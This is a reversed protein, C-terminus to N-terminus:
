SNPVYEGQAQSLLKINGSEMDAHMGVAKIVSNPQIMTIPESTEATKENPHVTLTTTKIVTAPNNFDAPHHITVDGNFVVNDIGHLAQATKSEVFWPNPSKHYLTLQPDIFDTTDNQVYHMMKPTVIKMTVKGVKDLIIATVNEMYADPLKRDVQTTHSNSQYTLTILAAASIILTTMLSIMANKYTMM